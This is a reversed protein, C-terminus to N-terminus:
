KRWTSYRKGKSFIGFFINFVDAKDGDETVMVGDDGCVSGVVEKNKKKSCVYSFFRKNNNKVERALM